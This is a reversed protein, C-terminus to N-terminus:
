FEVMLRQLGYKLVELEASRDNPNQHLRKLAQNHNHTLETEDYFKTFRVGCSPCKYVMHPLGCCGCEHCEFLINETPYEEYMILTAM